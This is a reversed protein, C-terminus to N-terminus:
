PCVGPAEFRYISGGQDDAHVTVLVNKNTLDSACGNLEFANGSAGSTKDQFSDSGSVPEIETFPHSGSSPAGTIRAPFVDTVTVLNEPDPPQSPDAPELVVSRSLKEDVDQLIMTLKDLADEHNSASFADNEVFDTLQSIPTDRLITVTLGGAPAASFTVTGGGENGAGSVSYDTGLVKLAQTNTNPDWTYVKLHGEALFKFPVSFATASGDADYQIKSEATPITM